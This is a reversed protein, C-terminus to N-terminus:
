ETPKQGRFVRPNRLQSVEATKPMRPDSDNQYEQLTSALAGTAMAEYYSVNAKAIEADIKMLICGSRAINGDKDIFLSINPIQGAPIEEPKVPVWGDQLYSFFNQKDEEAGNYYRRVWRVRWESGLDIKFDM